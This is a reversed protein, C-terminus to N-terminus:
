AQDYSEEGSKSLSRRRFDKAEMRYIYHEFGRWVAYGSLVFRNREAVRRSPHNQPRILSIVHDVGLNEFAWGTVASAAETAYGHKWHCRRLHYGIEVHSEGNVEQWVPGCDGLFEGSQRLVVAWLGHGCEDYRRQNRVIWDKVELRSLPHPMFHNTEPDGLGDLLGEEDEDVFERLILRATQPPPQM